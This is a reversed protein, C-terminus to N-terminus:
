LCFVVHGGSTKGSQQFCSKRLMLKPGVNNMISSYQKPHILRLLALCYQQCCQVNYAACCQELNNEDVRFLNHTKQQTSTWQFCGQVINDVINNLM